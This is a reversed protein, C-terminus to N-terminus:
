ATRNKFYSEKVAIKGNEVCFSRIQGSQNARCEVLQFAIRGEVTYTWPGDSTNGSRVHFCAGAEGTNAFDIRFVGHALDATGSVQLEYPLARAHRLGREQSPM